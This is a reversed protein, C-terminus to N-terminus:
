VLESTVTTTRRRCSSIRYEGIERRDIRLYDSSHFENSIANLDDSSHLIQDLVDDIVARPLFESSDQVSDM